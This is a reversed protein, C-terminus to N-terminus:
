QLRSVKSAGAQMTLNILQPGGILTILSPDSEKEGMGLSLSQM